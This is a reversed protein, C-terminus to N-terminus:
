FVLKLLASVIHWRENYGMLLCLLRIWLLVWERSLERHWHLNQEGCDREAAYWQSALVVHPKQIWFISDLRPSLSGFLLLTWSAHQQLIPHKAALCLPSLVRTLICHSQNIWISSIHQINTCLHNSYHIIHQNPNLTQVIIVHSACQTKFSRVCKM